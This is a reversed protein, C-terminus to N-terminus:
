SSCNDVFYSGNLRRRGQSYSLKINWIPVDLERAIKSLSTTKRVILVKEAFARLTKRRTFRNVKLEGAFTSSSFSGYVTARPSFTRACFLM